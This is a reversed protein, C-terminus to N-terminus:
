DNNIYLYLNYTEGTGAGVRCNGYVLADRSAPLVGSETTTQAVADTLITKDSITTGSFPGDIKTKIAAAEQMPVNPILLFTVRHPYDRTRTASFGGLGTVTKPGTMEVCRIRSYTATNPTSVVDTLTAGPASTVAAFTNEGFPVNVASILGQGILLDGFTANAQTVTAGNQPYTVPQGAPDLPAISADVPLRQQKQLYRDAGSTWQGLNQALQTVRGDRIGDIVRPAVVAGLIGIIAMVGIIEVLTFAGNSKRNLKPKM